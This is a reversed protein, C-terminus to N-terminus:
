WQDYSLIIPVPDGEIAPKFILHRLSILCNSVEHVIESITAGSHQWREATQRNTNGRLVFILIMLKQGACIYMSNRLGGTDILLDLLITFTEKSMRATESFSHVNETNMIERFYLDGTLVSDHQRIRRRRAQYAGVLVLAILILVDVDGNANM